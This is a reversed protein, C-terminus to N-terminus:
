MADLHKCHRYRIWGRCSCGWTNDSKRQGVVYLNASTESRIQIRSKWQGDDLLLEGGMRNVVVLLAQRDMTVAGRATVRREGGGGGDPCRGARHGDGTARAS